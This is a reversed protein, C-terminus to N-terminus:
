KDKPDKVEFSVSGVTKKRKTNYIEMIVRAKRKVRIIYKGGGQSTITAGAITLQLDESKVRDVKLTLDNDTDTFLTYPTATTIEFSEDEVMFTVPQKRFANVPRNNQVAPTWSGSKKLIRVVEQEMGYGIKTLPKIDSITGDRSVVFQVIVTYKGIPASNEIPVNPNLNKELFMRWGDFGGPFSAEEDVKEFINREGAGLSDEATEQAQGTISTFSVLLLFIFLYPKM